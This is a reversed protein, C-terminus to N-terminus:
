LAIREVLLGVVTTYPTHIYRLILDANYMAQSLIKGNFHRTYTNGNITTPISNHIIIVNGDTNLIKGKRKIGRMMEDHLTTCM